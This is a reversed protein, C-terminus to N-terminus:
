VMDNLCMIQGKMRSIEEFCFTSSLESVLVGLDLWRNRLFDM